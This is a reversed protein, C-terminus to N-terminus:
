IALMGGVAAAAGSAIATAFLWWAATAATKRTNEAQHLAAQKAQETRRMTERELEDVKTLVQQRTSDVQNSINEVDRRSIRDNSTLLAMFTEKDFQSLRNKLIGPAAKPDNMMKEVDWKLSDYQLEPRNLGDLYQRIKDEGGNGTSTTSSPALSGGAESQIANTRNDAQAKKQEAKDQVQSSKNAVWDIADEVYSVVKEAKDHDMKQHNELLAVLTSRDMKGVRESLIAQANSPNDIIQQIDNRIAEPDLESRETDKLYSEIQTIYNDIDEESASTFQAAVKKAKEENTDGAEVAQKAQEFTGKLKKVDKKSLNPQESALKVFIETDLVGDGEVDTKEELRIDKLLGIFDQKVQEYDPGSNATEEMRDVYEDVKNTLQRLDFADEMEHRMKEIAHDAINEIQGKQSSSFVNQVASAASRLGSTVTNILSGVLTSVAKSELYALVTFFTAWIVLGLTIGTLVNGILSLKVALLTAFFLAISSTILTWIGVGSSIKVGLPTSSDSSDSSNSNSSENAQKEVNGIASFGIAVSLSTLLVQFGIALLVGALISVFFQPTAVVDTLPLDVDQAISSSSALLVVSSTFLIIRSLRM